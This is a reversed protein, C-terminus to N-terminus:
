KNGLVYIYIYKENEKKRDAFFSLMFFTAYRTCLRYIQKNTHKEHYNFDEENKSNYFRQDIFSSIYTLLFFGDNGFVREVINLYFCWCVAM